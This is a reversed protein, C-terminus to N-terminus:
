SESSQHEEVESAGAASARDLDHVDREREEHAAAQHEEADAAAAGEGAAQHVRDRLAPGAPVVGGVADLLL